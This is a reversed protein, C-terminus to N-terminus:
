LLTSIYILSSITTVLRLRLCHHTSFSSYFSFSEGDITFLKTHNYLFFSLSVEFFRSSTITSLSIFLFKSLSPFIFLHRCAERVISISLIFRSAITTTTITLSAVDLSLFERQQLLSPSDFFNHIEKGSLFSHKEKWQLTIKTQSSLYNPPYTM